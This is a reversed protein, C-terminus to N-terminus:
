GVQGDLIVFRGNPGESDAVVRIKKDLESAEGVAAEVMDAGGAARSTDFSKWVTTSGLGKSAADVAEKSSFSRFRVQQYGVAIIREGPAVFSASQERTNAHSGQIQVAGIAQSAATGAGPALANIADSAPVQVKGTVKSSESADLTVAVDQVTHLAVVLYIRTKNRYKELWKKVNENDLLAEFKDDVNYLEYSVAKSTKIADTTNSSRKAFLELFKTLLLQFTSETTTNTLHDINLFERRSRDSETVTLATTKCFNRSPNATDLVLRGLEVDERALFGDLFRSLTPMKSTQHTHQLKNM